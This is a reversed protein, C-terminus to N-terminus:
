PRSKTPDPGGYKRLYQRLRTHDDPTSVGSLGDAAGSVMEDFGEIAAYYGQGPSQTAPNVLREFTYKVDASMLERGNHFKVGTRLKFTYTLGDASITYSEALDPVLETTGMKYGMLGDAILQMMSPNQWDYGIAPDLTAIDDKYSVVISGGRKAEDAGVAPAVLIALCSVLGAISKTTSTNM